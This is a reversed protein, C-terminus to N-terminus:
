IVDVRTGSTESYQLQNYPRMEPTSWLYVWRADDPKLNVCGHSRIRGFANHWFAGHFAHGGQTFYSVWPVGPLDYNGFTRNIPLMHQSARKLGIRFHGSPTHYQPNAVYDGTSIVAEFVQKGSEFAAMRQEELYVELHKEEAPVDPSIPALEEYPIVRLRNARVWRERDPFKDDMVRYWANGFADKQIKDVWHTTSYYYRYLRPSDESPKEYVDAFPVTVVALSGTFVLDEAPLQFNVEVPQLWSLHTYGLNGIQAWETGNRETAEGTVKQVIPLVMDKWYSAVQRAFYSPEEFVQISGLLVRGLHTEQRAFVKEVPLLAAALSVGGLKLFGRRTLKSFTPNLKM